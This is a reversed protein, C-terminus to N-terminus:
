RHKEPAVRRARASCSRCLGFLSTSQSRVIFGARRLRRLHPQDTAESELDTVEGCRECIFHDHERVMADYRTVGDHLRVKRVQGQAELKDLNRYVTGLSIRPLETRVREFLQEASPHDHSALIVDLTARLQRTSRAKM